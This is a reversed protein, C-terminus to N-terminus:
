VGAQNVTIPSTTEDSFTVTLTFEFEVVVVTVFWFCVPFIFITLFSAFLLLITNGPTVNLSLFADPCYIIATSLLPLTWFCTVPVM